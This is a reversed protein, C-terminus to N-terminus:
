SSQWDSGAATPAAELPTGSLLTVAALPNRAPKRDFNIVDGKSTILFCICTDFKETSTVRCCDNVCDCSPAFNEDGGGGGGGSGGVGVGSEDNDDDVAAAAAAAADEDDAAANADDGGDDDDGIIAFAVVVFFVFANGDAVETFIFEDCFDTISHIRPRTRASPILPKNLYRNYQKTKNEHIIHM